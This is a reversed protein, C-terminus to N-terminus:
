PAYDLRRVEALASAPVWGRLGGASQVLRWGPRDSVVTVVALEMARGTEAALGHPAQRLVAERSVVALPRGYWWSLTGAGLAAGAAATLLAVSALARPRRWWALWGALWLIAGAVALEAPTLPLIRGADTLDRSLRAVRTWASRIEPNRPALRRAVIWDAAARADQGAEFAQAGSRYWDAAGRVPSEQATVPAALAAVVLIAVLSARRLREPWASLIRGAEAEDIKEGARRPDFRRTASLHYARAVERSLSSDLGAERLSMALREERRGDADPVLARVQSILRTLATGDAVAGAPGARRGAPRWGLALIPALLAAAMLAIWGGVSLHVLSLPERRLVPLPAQRRTSELAPQVPVVVSRAVAESWSARVGDFFPYSLDPLALSGASDAIVLYRFRKIGAVVGNELRVEDEVDEPYGRSGDPWRAVPAPWLAVNGAGTLVLDVPIPDGVRAPEPALEYHFELGSAVPGVGGPPLARVELRRAESTLQVTREDSFYQRGAPLGFSLGAPPIVVSGERVPFIIQHAVYVDYWVGGVDRSAAVGAASPQIASYVGDITPPRISPPRRLRDLTTRPFWAATVVDVQEGVRVTDASVLLTVGVEGPRPPRARLLLQNVRPTVRPGPGRAAQVMVEVVPSIAVRSGQGIRVPGVSWLGAREGRLRLELVYLENAGGAGAPQRADNRATLGLGEFEPLTVQVPAGAEVMARVTYTVSEGVEIRDRDIEASVQIDQQLVLALFALLM